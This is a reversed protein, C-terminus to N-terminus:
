AVVRDFAVYRGIIELNQLIGQIVEALFSYKIYRAECRLNTKLVLSSILPAITIRWTSNQEYNEFQKVTDVYSLAPTLIGGYRQQM